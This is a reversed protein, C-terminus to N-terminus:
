EPDLDGIFSCNTTSPPCPNLTNGGIFFKKFGAKQSVEEEDKSRQKFGATDEIDVCYNYNAGDYLSTKTLEFILTLQWGVSVDDGDSPFTEEKDYSGFYVALGTAGQCNLEGVFGRSGTWASLGIWLSITEEFDPRGADWCIQELLKRKKSRFANAMKGAVEKTLEIVGGFPSIIFYKGLDIYFDDGTADKTPAFILTLLDRNGAQVIADVAPNGTSCYDAFYFRLGSAGSLAEIRTMLDLIDEKRYHWSAAEPKGIFQSLAMHKKKMFNGIVIHDIIKPVFMQPLPQNHCSM